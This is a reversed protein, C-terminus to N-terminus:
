APARASTQERLVEVELFRAPATIGTEPLHGWLREAEQRDASRFLEQWGEQPLEVEIVYETRPTGM